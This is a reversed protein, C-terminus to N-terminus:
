YLTRRRGIDLVSTDLIGLVARRSFTACSSVWGRVHHEEEIRQVEGEHTGGFDGGEAVAVFLEGLEVAFHQGHGHVALEGVQGPQLCFSGLTSQAVEVIRQDRIQLAFDGGRVAHERLLSHGEASEENNIPFSDYLMRGDVVQGKAPVYVLHQTCQLRQLVHLVIRVLDTWGTPLWALLGHLGIRFAGLFVKSGDLDVLCQRLRSEWSPFLRDTYTRNKASISGWTKEKRIQATHFYSRKLHLLLHLTTRPAWRKCRLHLVIARLASPVRREGLIKNFRM